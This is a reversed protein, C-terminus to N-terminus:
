STRNILFDVFDIIKDKEKNPTFLGLSDKAMISFHRAKNLCDNLVKYREMKDIVWALDNNSVTNKNILFEM